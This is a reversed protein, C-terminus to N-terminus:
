ARPRLPGEWDTWATPPHRHHIHAAPGFFGEKSMEREYTGDPVDAHAQRSAQGEVRSVSIWNKMTRDKRAQRVQRVQTMGPARGVGEARGSQDSGAGDIRVARPFQRRRLGRQGQAPHDRLLD